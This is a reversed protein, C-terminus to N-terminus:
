ARRIGRNVPDARIFLCKQIKLRFKKEIEFTQAIPPIHLFSAAIKYLVRIRVQIITKAKEQIEQTKTGLETQLNEKEEQIKGSASNNESKLAKLEEQM